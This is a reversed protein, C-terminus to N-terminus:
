ILVVCMGLDALLQDLVRVLDQFQDVRLGLVLERDTRGLGLRLEARQVAKRM